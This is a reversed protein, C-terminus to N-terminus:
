GVTRRKSSRFNDHHSLMCNMTSPCGGFLKRPEMSQQCRKLSQLNLFDHLVSKALRKRCRGCMLLTIQHFISFDVDQIKAAIFFSCCHFDDESFDLDYKRKVFKCLARVFYGITEDVDVAVVPRRVNSVSAKSESKPAVEASRKENLCNCLLKAGGVLALTAAIAVVSKKGNWNKFLDMEPLTYCLNLLYKLPILLPTIM